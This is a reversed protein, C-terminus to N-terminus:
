GDRHINCATRRDAHHQVFTRGYALLQDRKKLFADTVAELNTPKSFFKAKNKTEQNGCSATRQFTHFPVGTFPNAAIAAAKITEAVKESKTFKRQPYTKRCISKLWRAVITTHSVKLVIATKRLSHFLSYVHRALIRRDHSYM